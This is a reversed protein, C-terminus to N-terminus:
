VSFYRVTLISTQAPRTALVTLTFSNQGEWNDRPKLSGVISLQVFSVSWCQLPNLIRRLSKFFGQQRGQHKIIVLFGWSRPTQSWAVDRWHQNFYKLFYRNLDWLGINASNHSHHLKTNIKKNRALKIFIMNLGHCDRLREWERSGIESGRRLEVGEIWFWIQTNLYQCPRSEM